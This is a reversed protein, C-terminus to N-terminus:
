LFRQAMEQIVGPQRTGLLEFAESYLTRGELTRVLVERIFRRGLHIRSSNYFDGGRSAKGKPDAAEFDVRLETQTARLVEESILGIGRARYVIALSSVKFHQAMTESNEKASRGSQWVPIFEDRPMLMEAAVENCFREVPVDSPEFWDGNPMGSVGLWLHVLEHAITFMQSGIWDKGNIFIFPAFPDALAFGKFEDPNLGRATASGAYGKRIVTIRSEDLREIMWLVADANRRNVARDETTIRLTSRIEAALNRVEAQITASGVFALREEGDADLQESLWSQRLETEVITDILNLSPKPASSGQQRRFDQVPLTEEPPKALFFMGYPARTKAALRELQKVPIEVPIESDEWEQIPAPNKKTGVASALEDVTLSARNRAWSILEPRITVNM